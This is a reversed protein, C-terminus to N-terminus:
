PTFHIIFRDPDDGATYDFTYSSILLDILIGTFLDELLVNSFDSTEIADITYTGSQGATFALPVSPTVSQTNISLMDNTTSTYIQPVGPVGSFLKYADWEKDFESTAEELFRIHTLDYYDNGNASAKLTLLNEIDSKFWTNENDHIREEGTLIFTGDGFANVFFGQTPPINPGVGGAWTFYNNVNGDWFYLSQNLNPDWTIALPDITCPYPNGLLNWGAFNTGSTYTFLINYPGTHMNTFPGIMEILEGTGFGCNTIYDQDLKISWGEMSNLPIPPSAPTCPVTGQINQWLGIIEDWINVFYDPISDTTFGDIPSSIYHWATPDTVPTSNTINRDFEFIGNGAIGGNNIFSGSLGNEDSQILFLGDNTFLGNTTLDGGPAITLSANPYITLSGTLAGPFYIVPFAAKGVDPIEVDEAVPVSSKSWNSPNDWNNDINGTWLNNLCAYGVCGDIFTVTFPPPYFIGTTDWTLPTGGGSYIFNIECMVAPITPFEPLFDSGMWNFGIYGIGVSITWEAQPFEPTPFSASVFTLVATDYFIYFNIIM